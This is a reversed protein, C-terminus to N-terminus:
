PLYVCLPLVDASFGRMYLVLYFVGNPSTSREIYSLGIGKITIFKYFVYLSCDGFAFYKFYKTLTDWEKSRLGITKFLTYKKDWQELIFAIDVNPQKVKKNILASM